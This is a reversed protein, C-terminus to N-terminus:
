PLMIRGPAGNAGQVTHCSNCDGTMQMAGMKRERGEYVVKASFPLAVRQMSHFNGASNVELELTRGDAGTIVVTIDSDDAGDCHDPEHATPYVTGAITFAPGDMMRHCTICARGPRMQEGEGDDEEWTDGSSCVVPTNFPNMATGADGPAVNAACSESPTGATIWTSLLAIEQASAPMGPPMEGRQMRTLAVDAVRLNPNSRAAALLDARTILAMPAALPPNAHCSQCRNRLLAALECSLDASSIVSGADSAGGANSADTAAAADGRGADAAASAGGPVVVGEQPRQPSGDASCAMTLVTVLLLRTKM